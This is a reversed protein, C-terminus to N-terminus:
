AGVGCTPSTRIGLNRRAVVTLLEDHGSFLIRLNRAPGSSAFSARGAAADALVDSQVIGIDIRDSRLAELNAVSGTSAEEMCRMHHRPTDLNFLRCISAALSYDTGTPAAAGITVDPRIALVTCGSVVGVLM